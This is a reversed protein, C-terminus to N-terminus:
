WRVEVMEGEDAENFALVAPDPAARAQPVPRLNLNARQESKLWVKVLLAMAKEDGDLWQFKGNVKHLGIWCM